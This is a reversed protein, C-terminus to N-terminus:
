TTALPTDGHFGRQLIELIVPSGASNQKRVLEAATLNGWYTACRTSPDAGAQLLHRVAEPQEMLAAHMLPTMEGDILTRAEVDVDFQLLADIVAILGFGAARHLPTGDVGQINPDGGNQLLCIILQLAEPSPNNRAMDVATHLLTIGDDAPLDPKEGLEMLLKAAAVDCCAIARVLLSEDVNQPTRYWPTTVLDLRLQDIDGHSRYADWIPNSWLDVM